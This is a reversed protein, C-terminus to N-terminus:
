ATTPVKRTVCPQLRASERARRSGHLGVKWFPNCVGRFFPSQTCVIAKYVRFERGHCTVTLDSFDGTLYLPWLAAHIRLVPAPDLYQHGSGWGIASAKNQSSGAENNQGEESM